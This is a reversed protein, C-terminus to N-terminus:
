DKSPEGDLRTLIQYGATVRADIPYSKNALIVVGIRRDPVFAVYAAFGYTSGTKDLLIDDRPQLPPEIETAPNAALSVKASNGALLDQLNVPYPYQERRVAGDRTQDDARRCRGAQGKEGGGRFRESACPGAPVSYHDCRTSHHIAEDPNRAREATLGDHLNLIIV